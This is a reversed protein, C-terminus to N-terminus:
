PHENRAEGILALIAAVIQRQAISAGDAMGRSLPLTIEANQAAQAAERLANERADTAPIARIADLLSPPTPGRTGAFWADVAVLAELRRILDDDSM